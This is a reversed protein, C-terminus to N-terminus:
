MAGSTVLIYNGSRDRDIFIFRKKLRAYTWVERHGAVPDLTRDSSTPPGYLVYIRGRDSRFGDPSH